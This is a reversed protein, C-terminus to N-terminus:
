VSRIHHLQGYWYVLPFPDGLSRGRRADWAKRWTTLNRLESPTWASFLCGSYLVEWITRCTPQARPESELAAWAKLRLGCELLDAPMPFIGIRRTCTSRAASSVQGMRYQRLAAMAHLRHRCDMAVNRALAVKVVSAIMTVM